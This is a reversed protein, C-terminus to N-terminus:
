QKHKKSNTAELKTQHHTNKHHTTNKNYHTKLTERLEKINIKRDKDKDAYNFMIGIVREDLSMNLETLIQKLEKFSINGDRNIDMVDFARQINVSVMISEKNLQIFRNLRAEFQTQDLKKDFEKNGELATPKDTFPEKGYNCLVQYPTKPPNYKNSTKPQQTNHQRSQIQDLEDKTFLDPHHTQIVDFAGGSNHDTHDSPIPHVPVPTVPDDSFDPAPPYNEMLSSSNVDEDSSCQPLDNLTHDSEFWEELVLPNLRVYGGM